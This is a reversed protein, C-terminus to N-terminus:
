NKSTCIHFHASINKTQILIKLISPNEPNGLGHEWKKTQVKIRRILHLSHNKRKGSFGRIRIRVFVDECKWM